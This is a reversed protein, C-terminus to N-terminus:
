RGGSGGEEDTQTAWNKTIVGTQSEVNYSDVYAKGLHEVTRDELAIAKTQCAASLLPRKSPGEFQTAQSDSLIGVQTGVNSTEKHIAQQLDQQVIPVVIQEELPDTQLRKEATLCGLQTSVDFQKGLFKEVQTATTEQLLGIQCVADLVPPHPEFLSAQVGESQQVVGVQCSAALLSDPRTRDTQVEAHQQITGTQTLTHFRAPASEPTTQTSHASFLSGIQCVVDSQMRPQLSSAVFQDCVERTDRLTLDATQVGTSSTVLGIQCIADRSPQVVSTQLGTSHQDRLGPGIQTTAIGTALWPETQTHASSQIYGVQCVADGVHTPPAQQTRLQEVAILTDGLMDAQVPVDAQVTGTQTIAQFLQRSQHPVSSLAADTQVWKPVTVQGIQCLAEKLPRASRLLTPEPLSTLPLTQSAVNETEVGIQTIADMVDRRPRGTLEVTRSEGHWTVDSRTSSRVSSSAGSEQNDFKPHGRDYRSSWRRVRSILHELQTQHDRQLSSMRTLEDDMRRRDADIERLYHAM